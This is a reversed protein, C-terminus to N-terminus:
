LKRRRRYGVAALGTGLLLLTTPEPVPIPADITLSSIYFGGTGSFIDLVPVNSLSALGVTQPNTATSGLIGGISGADCGAWIVTGGCIVAVEGDNLARLDVSVWTAGAPLSFEIAELNFDVGPNQDNIETSGNGEMGLGDVTWLITSTSNDAAGTGILTVGSQTVSISTGDTGGTQFDYTILAAQAFQGSALMAGVVAVGLVNSMRM